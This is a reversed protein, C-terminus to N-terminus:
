SENIATIHEQKMKKDMEEGISLLKKVLSFHMVSEGHKGYTFIPKTIIGNTFNEKYQSFEDIYIYESKSSKTKVYDINLNNNLLLKIIEGVLKDNFIDQNKRNLKVCFINKVSKYDIIHFYVKNKLESIVLFTRNM